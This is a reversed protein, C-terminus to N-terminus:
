EKESVNSPEVVEKKQNSIRQMRKNVKVMRCYSDRREYSIRILISVAVMMVILSSGGYSIFPLTLGKTPLMGFSAGINVFTQLFFWIGIGIAIFGQNINQNYKSAICELGLFISRMILLVEFLLIVFVGAMGMEEGLIALIFDTHPEPLYSEKIISNGLGQGFIGGRGYAMLSMTLQFGENFQYKWPDLFSVLRGVRYPEIIIALIAFSIVVGISITIKITNAGAFVLLIWTISVLVFISGFDKQFFLIVLFLFLLAFPKLFTWWGNMEAKHRHIFGAIYIIWILKLVESPQFNCFGLGIWRKAGNIERGFLLPLLCLVLLWFIGKGKCFEELSKTSIKISFFSIVIGLLVYFFQRIVFHYSNGFKLQSVSISSSFVIVIGITLLLSVIIIFFRDYLVLSSTGEQYKKDENGLFITFPNIM